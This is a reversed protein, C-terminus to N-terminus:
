REVQECESQSLAAIKAELQQSTLGQIYWNLTQLCRAFCVFDAFFILLLGRVEAERKKKKEESEKFHAAIKQLM